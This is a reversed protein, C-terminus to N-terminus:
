EYGLIFFGLFSCHMAETDVLIYFFQIFSILTNPKDVKPQVGFKITTICVSLMGCLLLGITLTQLHM